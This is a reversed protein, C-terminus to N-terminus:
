WLVRQKNPAHVGCTHKSGYLSTGVFSVTPAHMIHTTWMGNRNRFSVSHMTM